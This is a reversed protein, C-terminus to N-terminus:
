HFSSLTKTRLGRFKKSGGFFKVCSFTQFSNVGLMKVGVFKQGGLFQQGCFINAWFFKRGLIQKSGFMKKIRFKLNPNFNLRIPVKATSPLFAM